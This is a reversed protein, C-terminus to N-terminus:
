VQAVHRHNKSVLLRKALGTSGLAKIPMFGQSLFNVHLIEKFLKNPNSANNQSTVHLV